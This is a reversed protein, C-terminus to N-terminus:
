PRSLAEARYVQLHIWAFHQVEDAGKKLEEIVSAIDRDTEGSPASEDPMARTYPCRRVLRAAVRGPPMPIPRDGGGAGILQEKTCRSPEQLVNILTVRTKPLELSLM